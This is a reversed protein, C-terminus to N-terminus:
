DIRAIETRRWYGQTIPPAPKRLTFYLAVAMVAISATAVVDFIGLRDFDLTLDLATAAYAALALVTASAAWWLQLTTRYGAFVSKRDSTLLLKDHSLFRSRILSADEDELTVEINRAERTLTCTITWTDYAPLENFIMTWAKRSEDIGGRIKNSGAYVGIASDGDGFRGGEDLVRITMKLRGTLSVEENNQLAFRCTVVNSKDDSTRQGSLCVSHALIKTLLYGGSIFPLAIKFAFLLWGLLDQPM